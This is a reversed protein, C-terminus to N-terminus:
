EIEEKEGSSAFRVYKTKDWKPLKDIEVNVESLPGDCPQLSKWSPNIELIDDAVWAKGTFCAHSREGNPDDEVHPDNAYNLWSARKGDYYIVFGYKPLRYFNENM